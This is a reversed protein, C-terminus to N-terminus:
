RSVPRRGHHGPDNRRRRAGGGSRRRPSSSSGCATETTVPSRAAVHLALRTKGVGGVGTLTVLRQAGVLEVVDNVERERGVFSTSQMPLNGPVTPKEVAPQEQTPIRELTPDHRLIRRKLDVLDPGPELGLTEILRTRAEQYLAIAEVHRGNRYLARMALAWLRERHPLDRCLTLLEALNIPDEATASEATFQEKLAAFRLELLESVAPHWPLDEGALVDGRWLGLAEALRHRRDSSDTPLAGVELLLRKFRMSDITDPDAILRLGAPSREITADVGHDRLQRRLRSVAVHVGSEDATGGEGLVWEAIVTRAVAAPAELLLLALLKRERAGRVTAGDGVELRGLLRFRM